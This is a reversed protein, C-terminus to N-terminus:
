CAAWLENSLRVIQIAYFICPNDIKLRFHLSHIACFMESFITHYVNAMGIQKTCQCVISRKPWALSLINCNPRPLREKLILGPFSTKYFHLKQSYSVKGKLQFTSLLFYLIETM